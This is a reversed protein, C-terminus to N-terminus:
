HAVSKWVSFMGLGFLAVAGIAMGTRADIGGIHKDLHPLAYSNAGAQYVSPGTAATSHYRQRWELVAETDVTLALLTPFRAMIYELRLIDKESIVDDAAPLRRLRLAIARQARLIQQPQAEFRKRQDIARGIMDGAEGFQSLRARDNEWNFVVAAACFLAEHGPKWGAALQRAVLTEFASRAHEDSLQQDDLRLQIASQWLSQDCLLRGRGLVACAENLKLLAANAHTSPAAGSRGTPKFMSSKRAQAPGPRAAPLPAAQDFLPERSREMSAGTPPLQTAWTLATDYSQTLDDFKVADHARAMLQLERAYARRIAVVNTNEDLNLRSLFPYTHRM